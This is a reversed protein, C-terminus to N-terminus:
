RPHGIPILYLPAENEALGLVDSLRHDEFAGIPVGGLNLAQAQLLLNQAAHGAEMFVYRPTRKGYKVSMRAGVATIVFVSPAHIIADQGLAARHIEPRLDNDLRRTLHHRGPQFHYLGSSQVLYIELPYLAGASPATRLGGSDTIGQAAWFLQSIDADAVPEGTFERVCRRSALIEELSKRGRLRPEPLVELNSSGPGSM